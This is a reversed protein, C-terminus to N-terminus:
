EKILETHKKLFMEIMPSLNEEKAQSLIENKIENGKMNPKINKSMERLFNCFDQTAAGIHFGIKYHSEKQKYQNIGKEIKTKIKVEKQTNGTLGRLENIDKLMNRFEKVTDKIDKLTTNLKEKSSDSKNVERLDKLTIPIVM